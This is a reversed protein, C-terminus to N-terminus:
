NSSTGAFRNFFSDRHWRPRDPRNAVRECLAAIVRTFGAAAELDMPQSM